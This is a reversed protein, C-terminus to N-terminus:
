LAFHVPKMLLDLLDSHKRRENVPLSLTMTQTTSSNNSIMENTMDLAASSPQNNKLASPLAIELRRKARLRRYAMKALVEKSLSDLGSRRKVARSNAIDSMVPAKKRSYGNVVTMHTPSSSPLVTFFRPRQEEM